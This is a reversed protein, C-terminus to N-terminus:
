HIYRNHILWHICRILVDGHCSDPKCYCVLEIKEGALHKKAIRVLEDFVPNSQNHKLKVQIEQWLWARYKEIVEERTTNKTIPFPNALPSSNLNYYRNNRGIYIKDQGVFGSQKGNVVTLM